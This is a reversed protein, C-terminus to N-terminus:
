GFFSNSGETEGGMNGGTEGSDSHDGTQYSLLAFFAYQHIPKDAYFATNAKGEINGFVYYGGCNVNVKSFLRNSINATVGMSTTYEEATNYTSAGVQQLGLKSFEGIAGVSLAKTLAYNVGINISSEPKLTYVHTDAPAPLHITDNSHNTFAAFVHFSKGFNVTLGATPSCIHATVSPLELFVADNGSGDIEGIQITECKIGGQGGFSIAQSAVMPALLLTALGFKKIGNM